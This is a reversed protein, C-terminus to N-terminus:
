DFVTSSLEIYPIDYLACVMHEIICGRANRWDPHFIVLDAQSLKSIFDGLYLIPQNITEDDPTEEIISDILEFSQEYYKNVFEHIESMENKVDKIDKDRMPISIFLKYSM